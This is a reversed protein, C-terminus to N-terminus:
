LYGALDVAETRTIRELGDRLAFLEALTAGHPGVRGVQRAADGLWAVAEARLLPGVEVQALRRGPRVV